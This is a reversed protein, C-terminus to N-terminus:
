KMFHHWYFLKKCKLRVGFQQQQIACCTIELRMDVPCNQHCVPFFFFSVLCTWLVNEMHLILSEFGGRHRPLRTQASKEVCSAWQQERHLECLQHLTLWCEAPKYRVQSTDGSDGSRPSTWSPFALFSDIGLPLCFPTAPPSLLDRGGARGPQLVAVVVLCM